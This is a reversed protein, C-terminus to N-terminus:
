WKGVRDEEGPFLPPHLFLTFFLTSTGQAESSPPQIAVGELMTPTACLLVIAEFSGSAASFFAESPLSVNLTSVAAVGSPQRVVALEFTALEEQGGSLSTRLLYCARLEDRSSVLMTWQAPAITLLVTVPSRPQQSTTVRIAPADLLRSSLLM